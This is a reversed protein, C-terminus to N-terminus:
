SLFPKVTDFRRPLLPHAWIITCLTGFLIGALAIAYSIQVRREVTSKTNDSARSPRVSVEDIKEAQEFLESTAILPAANSGDVQSAAKQLVLARPISSEPSSGEQRNRGVDADPTTSIMPASQQKVALMKLPPVGDAASPSISADSLPVTMSPSQTETPQLRASPAAEPAARAAMRKKSRGLAHLYWCKLQTAPDIRYRWHSGQPASSNPAALCDDAYATNAPVGISLCLCSIVLAAFLAILRGCM